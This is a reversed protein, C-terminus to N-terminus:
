LAHLRGRCLPGRGYDRGPNSGVNKEAQPPWNGRGDFPVTRRERTQRQIHRGTDARFPNQTPKHLFAAIDAASRTLGRATAAYTTPCLAIYNQPLTPESEVSDLPETLLTSKPRLAPPLYTYSRPSENGRCFWLSPGDQILFM